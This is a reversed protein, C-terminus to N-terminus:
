LSFLLVFFERIAFYMNDLSTADFYEVADPIRRQDILIIRDNELSVPRLPSGTEIKNNEAM